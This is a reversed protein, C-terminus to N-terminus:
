ASLDPTERMGCEWKAKLANKLHIWKLIDASEKPVRSHIAGLEM